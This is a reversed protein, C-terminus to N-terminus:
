FRKSILIVLLVYWSIKVGSLMGCLRKFINDFPDVKGIPDIWIGLNDVNFSSDPVQELDALIFQSLESTNSHVQKSLLDAAVQNRDLVKYLLASTEQETDCVEVKITEDLTNTFMNSEEGQDVSFFRSMKGYSLPYDM